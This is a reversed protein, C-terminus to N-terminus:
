CLNLSHRFWYRSSRSSSPTMTGDDRLNAITMRNAKDSQTRLEANFIHFDCQLCQASLANLARVESGMTTPYDIPNTQQKQAKISQRMRQINPKLNELGLLSGALDWRARSLVRLQSGGFRAFSSVPVLSHRAPAIDAIGKTILLYSGVFVGMGAVTPLGTFVAVRRAMRDAVYRPIAEQRIAVNSVGGSAVGKRSGKPEFPLSQRDEPM